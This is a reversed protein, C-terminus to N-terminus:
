GVVEIRDQAVFWLEFRPDRDLGLADRVARQYARGQAAYRARAGDTPASDTKYDAIVIEGTSPDRYVLDITGSVFGTAADDSSPPLLVPLERALVDTGLSMLKAHLAGAVFRDLLATAEGLTHSTVGADLERELCRSLMARLQAKDMTAGSPAALAELVRHFARGLATAENRDLRSTSPVAASPGHDAGASAASSWPREKRARAAAHANALAVIAHEVDVADDGKDKSRTATRAPPVSRPLIWVNDDITRSSEGAAHAAELEAPVGEAISHALLQMHSKCKDLAPAHPGTPLPGSLVLRDRARTMAVYLTRVREAAAVRERATEVDEYGPTATGFFAYSTRDSVTLTDCVPVHSAPSGRDLDAVYVHAFDLGKAKHITLVQVADLASDKPRAEEAERGESSATRLARLCSQVDAGHEDLEEALRRFFRELNSVRYPGLYLSAAKAEVLFLTRLEEVFVDSPDHALSHRACAIAHIAAVLCAGFEAVREIGPVDRPVEPLAAEVAGLAARVSADGPACLETVHEHFGHRWLPILAADPVGVLSSRLLAVLAVHDRPDVITRVLVSAEIIERRQYFSKDGAVEYPVSQARLASLYMDLDGTARLLIAMDSWSAGGAHQRVLDAAIWDAEISRSETKTTEGFTPGADSDLQWPVVREVPVGDVDRSAVLPEFAPQLGAHAHMIPSMAREVEALIRRTSRHNVSLRERRGGHKEIERAFGEYAELDANRWGYISQKPDGVLFLGPKHTGPVDDLAICRIMECQLRDTDQFEDVLMQRMRARLGAVVRPHDRVLGRADHLLDTYTEIGHSVLEARVRELLGSLTRRASDHLLPRMRRFVDIERELAAARAPLLPEDDGLCKSESANFTGATWERLRKRSAESWRERVQEAAADLTDISIPRSSPLAELMSRLEDLVRLTVKSRAGVGALHVGPGGLFERVREALSDVLPAVREATYPDFELDSARRGASALKTLAEQLRVPGIDRALLRAISADPEGSLRAGLETELVERSIRELASGDADVDFNPSLRAEFPHEALLGRCFAHITHVVPRDLASALSSARARRTALDPPLDEAASGHPVDGQARSQALWRYASELRHGMESAAAETFTIAVIGDLVRRAIGADDSDECEAAAREWGPGLTWTVLRAILTTTKGTGAGAELLLPVDFTRRAVARAAEDASRLERDRDTTSV